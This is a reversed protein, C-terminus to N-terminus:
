GRRGFTDGCTCGEIGCLAKWMRRATRKAKKYEASGERGTGLVYMIQDLDQESLRTRVETNHFSNTWVHMKTANM